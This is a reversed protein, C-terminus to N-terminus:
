DAFHHSVPYQSIVKEFDSRPCRVVTHEDRAENYIIVHVSQPDLWAVRWFYLDFMTPPLPNGLHDFVLYNDQNFLSQDGTETLRGESKIVILHGDHTLAIRYILPFYDPFDGKLTMGMRQNARELYAQGEARDFARPKGPIQIVKVLDGRRVETIHVEGLGSVQTYVYAGQPGLISISRELALNLYDLNRQARPNRELEPQWQALPEREGSDRASILQVPQNMQGYGLGSLYLFGGDVRGVYDFGSLRKHNRIFQGHGDFEHIKGRDSIFLRGDHLILSFPSALEGPGEGKGVIQRAQDGDFTLLRGGHDLMFTRDEIVVLSRVGLGQYIETNKFLLYGDGGLSPPGICGVLGAFFM